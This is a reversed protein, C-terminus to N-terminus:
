KSELKDVRSELASLRPEIDAHQRGLIRLYRSTSRSERVVDLLTTEVLDLRDSMVDPRDTVVTLRDTVVELREGMVDFRRNFAGEMSDLRVSTGRTTERIEKLFEITVDSGAM